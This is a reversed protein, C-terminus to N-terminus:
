PVPNINPGASAPSPEPDILRTVIAEMLVRSKVEDGFPGTFLAIETGEPRHRAEIRITTWGGSSTSGGQRAHLVGMDASSTRDTIILGRARLVVEAVDLCTLIGVAPPVEARLTGLLFEAHIPTQGVPQPQARCAPLALAALAAFAM